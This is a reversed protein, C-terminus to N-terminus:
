FRKMQRCLKVPDHEIDYPCHKVCGRKAGADNNGAIVAGRIWSIGSNGVRTELGNRIGGFSGVGEVLALGLDNLTIRVACVGYWVEILWSVYIDGETTHTIKRLTEKRVLVAVFPTLSVNVGQESSSMM